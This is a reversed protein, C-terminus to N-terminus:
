GRAATAYIELLQAAADDATPLEAARSLSRQRLEAALTPENLVRTIATTLADPDAYPVLLAADGTVERTGGVDTAVVAAGAALAEQLNIPQGEWASTSVVVDAAAFLSPVDPRHGLLTVPLVEGLVQEALDDMLPGGGAVLWRAEPVRDALLAAADALLGLGKQPALRAVTLVIPQGPDLGLARREAEGLPQAPERGPAPVLAREARRAGHALADAVLDGSVGLVVDARATIVRLLGAAVSRVGQGGVAANHLTVVLATREPTPTSLALAALAGARLGHAHVVDAGKAIARIRAVARADSMRPRDQVDVVTTHVRSEPDLGAIVGRPGALIVRHDASLMAALERAHRGVGGDSSGTLQVIRHDPM